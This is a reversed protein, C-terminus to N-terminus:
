TLELAATLASDSIQQVEPLATLTTCLRPFRFNDKHGVLVQALPDGCFGPMFHVKGPEAGGVHFDQGFVDQGEFLPMGPIDGRDMRFAAGIGFGGGIFDETGTAHNTEHPFTLGGSENDAGFGTDQM